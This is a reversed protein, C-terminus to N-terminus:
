GTIDKGVVTLRIELETPIRIWDLHHDGMRFQEPDFCNQRILMNKQHGKSVSVTAVSVQTPEHLCCSSSSLITTYRLCKFSLSRVNGIIWTLVDRKTMIIRRLTRITSYLIFVFNMHCIVMNWCIRLGYDVSDKLSVSFRFFFVSLRIWILCYKYLKPLYGFSETFHSDLILYECSGLQILCWWVSTM